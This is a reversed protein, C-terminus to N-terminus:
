KKLIGACVLALEKEFIDINKERSLNRKYSKVINNMMGSEIIDLIYSLSFKSPINLKTIDIQNLMVNLGENFNPTFMIEIDYNMNLFIKEFYDKNEEKEIMDLIYIYLQRYSLIIDGKNRVINELLTKKIDKSYQGIVYYFADEIDNFYQYFSGRPIKACKVINSVLADKLPVRSFEKKLSEEVVKRKEENLNLFTQKAM